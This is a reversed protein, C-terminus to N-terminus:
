SFVSRKMGLDPLSMGPLTGEMCYRRYRQFREVLKNNGIYGSWRVKRDERGM